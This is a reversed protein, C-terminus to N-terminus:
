KGEPAPPEGTIRRWRELRAVYDLLEEMRRYWREAEEPFERNLREELEALEEPTADYDM